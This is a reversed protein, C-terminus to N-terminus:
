LWLGLRTVDNAWIRQVRERPTAVVGISREWNLLSEPKNAGLVSDFSYFVSRALLPSSCPSSSRASDLRLALSGSLFLRCLQFSIITLAKVRTTPYFHRREFGLLLWEKNDGPPRAGHAYEEEM